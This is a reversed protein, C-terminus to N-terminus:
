QEEVRIIEIVDGIKEAMRFAESINKARFVRLTTDSDGIIRLVYSKLTKLKYEKFLLKFYEKRYKPDQMLEAEFEEFTRLKVKKM